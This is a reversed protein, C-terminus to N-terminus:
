QGSGSSRREFLATYNWAPGWSRRFGFGHPEVLARLAALPIRDPDPIHEHVALVGGSRITRYLSRLCGHRDPVEGLVAVLVAVDFFQDPFPIRASADAATYGVNRLGAADLKCRAKALMEPQLDLLELRGQPVRSALEASFYGSGPGVELVRSSEVLPLRGVLRQPSVVLRRVPNDILWSLQHPFYGPGLARALVGRGHAPGGATKM